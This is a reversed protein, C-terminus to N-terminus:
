FMMYLVKRNSFFWEHLMMLLRRVVIVFLREFGFNFCCKLDFGIGVEGEESSSSIIVSIIKLANM